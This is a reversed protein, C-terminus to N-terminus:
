APLFIFTLPNELTTSCYLLSLTMMINDMPYQTLPFQTDIGSDVNILYRFRNNANMHHCIYYSLCEEGKSSLASIKLTVLRSSKYSQYTESWSKFGSLKMRLINTSSMLSEATTHSLCQNDMDRFYTSSIFLLTM